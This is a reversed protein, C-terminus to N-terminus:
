GRGRSGGSRRGERRRRGEVRVRRSQFLSSFLSVVSVFAIADERTRFSITTGQVYDASSAWGM